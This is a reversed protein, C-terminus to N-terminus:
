LDKLVINIIQSVRAQTYGAIEAVEEQNMDELYVMEFIEKEVGEPLGLIFAEVEKIETELQRRRSEKERIRERVVAATKPEAMQVTIHREIYPFEKSSGSVKGQVVPVNDLQAYLRDLQENILVLERKNPKYMRLREKNM